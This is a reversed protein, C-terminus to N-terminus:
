GEYFFFGYPQLTKTSLDVASHFLLKAPMKVMIDQDSFNFYGSLSKGDKTRTIHLLEPKVVEAQIDADQLLSQGARFTFYHQVWTLLSNPQELQQKVALPLHEKPVPLWTKAGQNFGGNPLDRDWVMPTRCGDRGKFEPYFVLGYPDQIEEKKIDYETLGLEEGQYVCLAGKLSGLVGFVLRQFNSQYNPNFQFRSAWRASDHNGFANCIMSDPAQQWFDNIEKEYYDAEFPGGIYDFSYCLQLLGKGATYERIIKKSYLNEGVEGLLIADYKDALSRLRKLFALNEPQNKDYLHDQLVYPNMSPADKISPLKKLLPNDRLRPDHFYFNVTDLRFGKVGLKFWFECAQLLADQVETQHFNLDPQEKLFNHLYYQKRGEDWQWSSGGFVSLWNNPPKNKNGDAWVYWSSKNNTKSKRSELFWPHQDSTHSLVMDIMVRLNLADAAKVLKSFDELSGFIPDVAQYDSVDYGFDKMPSKFFPSIWVYDAGLSKIYPLKRPLAPWIALGMM